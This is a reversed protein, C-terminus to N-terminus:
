NALSPKKNTKDHQSRGFWPAGWWLSPGVICSNNFIQYNKWLFNLLIFVLKKVFLTPQQQYQQFARSSHSKKCIIKYNKLRHDLIRPINFIMRFPFYNLLSNVIPGVVYAVSIYTIHALYMHRHLSLWCTPLAQQLTFSIYKTSVVLLKSRVRRILNLLLQLTTTLLGFKYCLYWGPTM